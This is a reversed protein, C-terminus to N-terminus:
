LALQDNLRLDPDERARWEFCFQGEPEKPFLKFDLFHVGLAGQLDAYSAGQELQQAYLKALYYASRNPYAAHSQSQMEIDFDRGRDDEAHIDLVILKAHVLEPSIEPNRVEIRTLLHYGYGSLVQNLLDLLLDLNSVLLRKFVLDLTPSLLPKPM